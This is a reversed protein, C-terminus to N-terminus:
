YRVDVVALSSHPVVFVRILAAEIVGGISLSPRPNPCIMIGSTTVATQAPAGRRM